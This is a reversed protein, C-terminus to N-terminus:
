RGPLDDPLKVLLPKLFAAEDLVILGSLGGDNKACDLEFLLNGLEQPGKNDKRLPQVFRRSERAPPM